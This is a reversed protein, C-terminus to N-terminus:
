GLNLNGSDVLAKLNKLKRTLNRSIFDILMNDSNSM